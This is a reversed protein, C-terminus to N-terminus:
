DDKTALPNEGYPKQYRFYDLALAAQDYYVKFGPEPLCEWIHVPIMGLQMVQTRETALTDRFTPTMAIAIPMATAQLRVMEQELQSLDM